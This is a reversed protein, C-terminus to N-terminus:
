NSFRLFSAPVAPLSKSFKKSLGSRDHHQIVEGVRSIVVQDLSCLDELHRDVYRRFSAYESELDVLANYHQASQARMKDIDAAASRLISDRGIRVEKKVSDFRNSIKSVLVKQIDNLIEFIDRIENDKGKNLNLGGKSLRYNGSPDKNQGRPPVHDHQNTDWHKATMPGTQHPFQPLLSFAVHQQQHVRESKTSPREFSTNKIAHSSPTSAQIKTSDLVTRRSSTAAPSIELRAVANKSINSTGSIPLIEKEMAPIYDLHPGAKAQFMDQAHIKLSDSVAPLITPMPSAPAPAPSYHTALNDHPLKHETNHSSAKALSVTRGLKSISDPKTLEINGFLSAQDDHSKPVIHTTLTSISRNKLIPSDITLDIAEPVLRNASKHLDVSIQADHNSNDSDPKLHIEEIDLPDFEEGPPTQVHLDIGSTPNSEINSKSPSSNAPKELQTKFDSKEWPAKQDKKVRAVKQRTYSTIDPSLTTSKTQEVLPQKTVDGKEVPAKKNVIAKPRLRSNKTVKEEKETKTVKNRAEDRPPSGDKTPKGAVRASRRTTKADAVVAVAVSGPKAKAKPVAKEPAKDKAKDNGKKGKMANAVVGGKMTGVAPKETAKTTTSQPISNLEDEYSNEAPPSSTRGKERKGYKKYHHPTKGSLPSRVPSSEPDPRPRKSPRNLCDEVEPVKRKIGAKKSPLEPSQDSDNSSEAKNTISNVKGYATGASMKNRADNQKHLTKSSATKVMKKPPSVEEIEDDSLVVNRGKKSPKGAAQASDPLDVNNRIPTVKKSIPSSSPVLIINPPSMEGLIKRSKEPFTQTPLEKVQSSVDLPKNSAALSIKRETQDFLSVLGRAKLVNLFHDRKPRPIDITLTVARPEPVDKGITPPSTLEFNFTTTSVSPQSYRSYRIKVMNHFAVHCTDLADDVDVNYTLGRQDVYITESPCPSSDSLAADTIPIPQPFKINMGAFTQVVTPFVEDWSQNKFSGVIRKLEKHQSFIAPNFVSDIFLHFEDVNEPILKEFLEFLAELHLYARVRVLELGFRAGGLLKPDRLKKQLSQHNKVTDSLLIYVTTKLEISIEEYNKNSESPFFHRCLVAFMHDAITENTKIDSNQMEELYDLVGSLISKQVHEWFRLLSIDHTTAKQTQICDFLTSSLLVAELLFPKYLQAMEQRISACIEAVVKSDLSSSELKVLVTSLKNLAAGFESQKRAKSKLNRFASKVDTWAVGAAM